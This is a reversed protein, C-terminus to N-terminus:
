KIDLSKVEIKGDEKDIIYRIETSVRPDGQFKIKINSDLEPLGIGHLGM